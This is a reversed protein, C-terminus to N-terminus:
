KRIKMDFYFDLLDKGIRSNDYKEKVLNRANTGIERCLGRNEYCRNIAAAFEEATDAILINKEHTCDIGEAGITTTIVTKGLAMGEIIKVRMGSGSLLPVIMISKPMMYEISHTISGEVTVSGSNMKMLRAPMNRGAFFFKINKDKKAIKNMVSSVFWQVAEINPMWDMSGLHFVSFPEKVQSADPYKEFDIGAPSVHVPIGCKEEEFIKKDEPTISVIADYRNLMSLEYKKIRGALITLYWHRFPNFCTDRLREWIKYEVNHSRLIIKAASKKRILQVYPALFLSELQVIDFTNKALISELRATFDKSEFRAINYSKDSFLLNALAPFFKVSADLYVTELSFKKRFRDDIEADPVFHKKTNFALMKVEAGAGALSNALNLMAISGGDLPPFPIRLCLQLIRM